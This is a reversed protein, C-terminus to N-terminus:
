KKRRNLRRRASTALGALGTGFLLLSAPEPVAAQSASFSYTQGQTNGTYVFTGPTPDYNVHNFFGTGELVLSTATQTVVAITYLDFTFGGITQFALVVPSPFNLSGGGSFTFDKMTGTSGTTVGEALFDGTSGALGVVFAGPVGPTASGTTTFDLGTATALTAGDGTAGIVPLFTGVVGGSTSYEGAILGADARTAGTAMFFVALVAAITSRTVM